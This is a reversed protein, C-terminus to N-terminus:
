VDWLEDLPVPRENYSEQLRALEHPTVNLEKCIEAESLGQSRLNLARARNQQVTRPLRMLRSQDRQAHLVYGAVANYAFSSFKVDPNPKYRTAARCMALYGQSVYDEFDLTGMTKGRLTKAVIGPVLHMHDNVLKRQAPTLPEYRKRVM